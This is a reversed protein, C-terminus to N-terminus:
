TDDLGEGGLARCGKATHDPETRSMQASPQEWTAKTDLEESLCSTAQTPPQNETLVTGSDSAGEEPLGRPQGHRTGLIVAVHVGLRSTRRLGSSEGKKAIGTLYAWRGM